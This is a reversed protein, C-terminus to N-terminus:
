NLVLITSFNTIYTLKNGLRKDLISIKARPINYPDSIYYIYRSLLPDYKRHSRNTERSTLKHGKRRLYQIFIGPKFVIIDFDKKILDINYDKINYTLLFKSNSKQAGMVIHSDDIDYVYKDDISNDLNIINIGSELNKM